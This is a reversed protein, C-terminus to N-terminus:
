MLSIQFVLDWYIHDEEVFQRQLRYACTYMTTLVDGDCKARGWTVTWAIKLTFLTSWSARHINKQKCEMSKALSM